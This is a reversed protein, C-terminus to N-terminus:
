LGSLPSPIGFPLLRRIYQDVFRNVYGIPTMPVHVLDNGQLYVPQTDNWFDEDVDIRWTYQQQKDRSWRVLLINDLEAYDTPAATGLAELLTLRGGQMDQIGPRRVQGTFTVKRAAFARVTVSIEPKSLGVEASYRTILERTLQGVTMGEVFIPEGLAIFGANGELDVTIQDQNWEPRRGFKISLVDRENITVAARDLTANIPEALEPLPRGWACGVCSALLALAFLRYLKM